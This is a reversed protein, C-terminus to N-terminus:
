KGEPQMTIITANSYFVPANDHLELTQTVTNTTESPIRYFIYKSM